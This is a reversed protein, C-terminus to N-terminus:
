VKVPVDSTVDYVSPAEESSISIDSGTSQSSPSSLSPTHPPHADKAEPPFEPKILPLLNMAPKVKNPSRTRVVQQPLSQQHYKMQPHPDSQQLKLPPVKPHPNGQEVKQQLLHLKLPPVPHPNGQQARQQVLHLKLPPVIVQQVVHVPPDAQVHPFLNTMHEPVNNSQPDSTGQSDMSAGDSGPPDMYISAGTTEATVIDAEDETLPEPLPEDASVYQSNLQPAM